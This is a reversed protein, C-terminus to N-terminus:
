GQGSTPRGLRPDLPAAVDLPNTRWQIDKPPDHLRSPLSQSEDFMRPSSPAGRENLYYFKQQSRRFIEDREAQSLVDPREPPPWDLSINPGKSYSPYHAVREFWPYPGVSQVEEPPGDNQTLLYQSQENQENLFYPNQHQVDEPLLPHTPYASSELNQEDHASNSNQMNRFLSSYRYVRNSSGRSNALEEDIIDLMPAAMESPITSTDEPNSSPWSGTHTVVRPDIWGTALVPSNSLSM